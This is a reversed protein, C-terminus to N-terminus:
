GTWIAELQQLTTKRLMVVPRAVGHHTVPKCLVVRAAVADRVLDHLRQRSEIGLLLRLGSYTAGAFPQATPDGSYLPKRATRWHMAALAWCLALVARPLRQPLGAKAARRM